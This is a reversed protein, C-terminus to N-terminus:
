EQKEINNLSFTRKKIPIEKILGNKKEYDYLFNQFIENVINKISTRDWYSISRLKSIIDHNIIFTTRIDKNNDDNTNDKNNILKSQLNKM